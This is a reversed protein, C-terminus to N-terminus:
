AGKVELIGGGQLELLLDDVLGFPLAVSDSVEFGSLSGRHHLAKVLLGLLTERSLGVEELSKPPAPIPGGLPGPKPAAADVVDQDRRRDESPSPPTAETRRAPDVLLQSVPEVPEETEGPLPTKEEKEAKSHLARSLIKSARLTSM